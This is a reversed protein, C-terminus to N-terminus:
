FPEEDGDEDEDSFLAEVLIKRVRVASLKKGPKPKPLKVDNEGAVERLDALSMDALDEEALTDIEDDEEEEEEDEEEDEEVGEIVEALRRRMQAVGLKKKGKDPKTSVEWEEALEKLAALDMDDLDEITIGEEDEDDVEDDETEEEEEDEFEEPEDEEEADDLLDDYQAAPLISNLDHFFITEGAENKDKGETLSVRAGFEDEYYKELAVKGKEKLDIGLARMMARLRFASKGGTLWNQRITGGIYAENGAVVRLTIVAMPNGAASEDKEAKTLAFIYRGPTLTVFDGYEETDSFDYGFTM